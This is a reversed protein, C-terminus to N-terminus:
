TKDRDYGPILEILKKRIGDEDNQEVMKRFADINKEIFDRPPRDSIVRLVKPIDTPQTKEGVSILEETLKEGPRIGTIKIPIDNGPELGTLRILNIALDMIRIPHGMDLIYIGGSEGRSAAQLVLQVAEPITMFFRTMEAHTVTVPGGLEIQRKFTPIVSGRSDLVNGFRVAVFRPGDEGSMSTIVMEALSKSAGMISSPKVAKDTSLLTMAEAKFERSLRALNLTGFVNVSIAEPVNTEMLPVHKHAAAHFIVQPCYKEFLARLRSYDRIDAIFPILPIDTITSLEVMIEHISNEGRGLLILQEPGFEVVQRCIESGISGGAGTVLITKGRLYEKVAETDLEIPERELLDEIKVERLQSIRIRGDVIQDLGPIVKVEVGLDRCLGLVNRVLSPSPLAIIIEQVKKEITIRPLDGTKGLVPIGHIRIKQKKPDDDVFGVVHYSLRPHRSLTRQISEGVDGAGVILTRLPATSKPLAKKQGYHKFALRSGETLILNILWAIIIISRPYLFGRALFITIIFPLYAITVAFVILIVENMGAYRWVRRYLGFLSYIGVVVTALSLFFWEYGHIYHLPFNGEFRIFIAIAISIIVTLFDLIGTLLKAQNTM